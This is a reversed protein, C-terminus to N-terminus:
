PGLETSLWRCRHLSKLEGSESNVFAPALLAFLAARSKAERVWMQAGSALVGM